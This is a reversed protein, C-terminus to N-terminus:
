LGLCFFKSKKYVLKDVGVSMSIDDKDYVTWRHNCLFDDGYFQQGPEFDEAQVPYEETLVDKTDIEPLNSAVVEFLLSSNTGGSPYMTVVPLESAYKSFIYGEIKKLEKEFYEHLCDYMYSSPSYHPDEDQTVYGKWGRQNNWKMDKGYDNNEYENFWYSSGLNIHGKAEAYYLDYIIQKEGTSTYFIGTPAVSFEMIDNKLLDIM